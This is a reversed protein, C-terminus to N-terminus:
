FHGLGDKGDPIPRYFVRNTPDVVVGGRVLWM